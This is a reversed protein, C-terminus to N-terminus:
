SAPGDGLVRHWMGPFDPLTKSTTAIDEVQIGAVALGLVAGAQAMRHDAYTRFVGGRMPRPRIVLGDETETVDGGIANLETALAALRDTEHGRIHAVGRLFTPSDALAALATVVPTLESVDHLDADIGSVRGTGRVTLGARDLRCDAGFRTLLDRLADGAQTTRAPWGPVRIEGGTVLAAALFPAANSLDPEITVDLGAPPGPAVRWTNPEADDVEVGAGRLSQVTMDIHPLSPVQKGDHHVTIGKDYRAGALLLGSVFQSSASADISVAGGPFAGRGVITFPLASRGGDDIDAGLARLAELVVGLPRQRAQPDGDFVVPGHALVAVPPVFRMITGALGCDVKAPGLLRGPTVAWDPDDEGTRDGIAVDEIRAGLSRLAAAMLVTDRARLPRRLRSPADALAAIVLARNTLSKSGPIPVTAHVPSAAVPAPWLGSM